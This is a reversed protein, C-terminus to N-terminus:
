SQQNASRKAALARNNALIAEFTQDLGGVELIAAHAACPVIREAKFTIEEPAADSDWSYDIVCGCTEPHWRTTKRM